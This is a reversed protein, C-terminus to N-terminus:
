DAGPPPAAEISDGAASPDTNATYRTPTTVVGSAVRAATRMPRARVATSAAQTAPAPSTSVSCATGAPSRARDSAPRRRATRRAPAPARSYRRQRALARPGARDAEIDGDVVDAARQARHQRRRTARRRSAPSHRSRRRRWRRCPRRPPASTGDSFRGSLRRGPVTGSRDAGLGAARVCYGTGHRAVHGFAPFDLHMGALLMRESAVMDLARARAPAAQDSDTDFVMGAEPRAFQIGPLHVVDGWILLTDNGSAILWGTHGPTHGPLHHATIGPLAEAGRRRRHPHPGPLADARAQATAFADRAGDPARAANEENLWFGTEVGNIVIEANPYAARGEADILGHVHDIHAHTVLVADIASPAIGLAQWGSGCMAWSAASPPAPAPMSWSPAARRLAAPLLQGHHAAAARPVLRAAADRVGSRARRGGPRDFGRVPRRQAGDVLVDGIQVHHIGPNAHTM